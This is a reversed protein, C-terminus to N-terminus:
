PFIIDIITKQNHILIICSSNPNLKIFDQFSLISHPIFYNDLIKSIKYTYNCLQTLLWPYLQLPPIM